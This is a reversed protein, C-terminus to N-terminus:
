KGFVTRLTALARSTLRPDSNASAERIAKLWGLENESIPEGLTEIVAEAATRGIAQELGLRMLYSPDAELARALAPLRDLAVKTRGAKIMSIMNENQYGAQGAIEAQTKRVRLELVRRAVFKALASGEHPKKM